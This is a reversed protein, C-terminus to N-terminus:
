QVETRGKGEGKIVGIVKDGRPTSMTDDTEWTGKIHEMGAVHCGELRRTVVAVVKDHAQMRISDDVLM